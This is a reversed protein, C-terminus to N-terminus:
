MIYQGGDYFIDFAIVIGASYFARFGTYLPLASKSSHFKIYAVNSGTLIQPPKYFGCHRFYRRRPDMLGEYVEVYDECNEMATGNDPSAPIKLAFQPFDLSIVMGPLVQIKYVCDQSSPYALPFHPSAIAGSATSFVM